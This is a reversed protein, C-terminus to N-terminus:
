QRASAGAQRRVKHSYAVGREIASPSASPSIRDLVWQNNARVFKWIETFTETESPTGAIVAGNKNVMYDIMSGSLQASFTDRAENKHDSVSYIAIEQLSISALVNRRGLALFGDTQMKHKCYLQASMCTRAVEQNNATWAEQVKFFVETVRDTLHKLNWCAEQQALSALLQEAARQKARLASTSQWHYVIFIVFALVVLFWIGSDASGGSGGGGYSHGGFSGGFSGGHGGGGGGGHGGGGGGGGARALSATTDSLFLLLLWCSIYVQM